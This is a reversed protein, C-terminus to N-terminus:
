GAKRGEAHGLAALASGALNTDKSAIVRAAPDGTLETLREALRQRFGPARQIVSGEALVTLPGSGPALDSAAALASAVLDAARDLVARALQGRPSGGDEQALRSVEASDAEAGLDLKRAAASFLPGLYAGSVAKEFRQAGPHASALDVDDDAEGLGPPSFAGCESNVAMSPAAFAGRPLKEIAAAPLYFGANVGTGVILGVTRAPDVGPKGSGAALTAITDNLLFIPGPELKAEELHQRLLQGVREGAVGPVKVEKTWRLLVADGDPRLAIPYSFCYGIPTGAPAGLRAVLQAHAQFLERATAEPRGKSGPFPVEIIEGEVKAGGQEVSVLAARLNTGGADIAIARGQLGPRPPALYAPLMALQRGDAGLGERFRTVLAARARDLDARTWLLGLDRLRSSLAAPDTVRRLM